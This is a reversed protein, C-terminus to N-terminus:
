ERPVEQSAHRGRWHVGTPLHQSLPLPSATQNTNILIYSQGPRGYEEPSPLLIPVTTPPTLYPQKALMYSLREAKGPGGEAAQCVCGNKELLSSLYLSPSINKNSKETKHILFFYIIFNFILNRLM